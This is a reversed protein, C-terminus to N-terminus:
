FLRRISRPPMQLLVGLFHWLMSPLIFGVTSAAPQKPMEGMNTFFAIILGKPHNKFM